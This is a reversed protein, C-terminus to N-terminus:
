VSPGDACSQKLKSAIARPKSSGSEKARASSPIVLTNRTV